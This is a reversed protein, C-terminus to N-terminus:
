GLDSPPPHALLAELGEILVEVGEDGYEELSFGPRKRFGAARVDDAVEGLPPLASLRELMAELAAQPRRRAWDFAVKVMIGAPTVVVRCPQIAGEPVEFVFTCAPKSGEGWFFYSVRPTAWDFLSRLLRQEGPSAKEEVVEFFSAETWRPTAGRASHKRRAAEEGFSNPLLIELGDVRSYRFELVVVELSTTTHANLYEVARKLDETIDDVAFVLRFAGEDLNAAVRARFDAPDFDDDGAVAAALEILSSGVRGRVVTDLEDYSMGWLGGAYGLLQGVVARRIEPNRNLKAEVLTIAGDLDVLLVDLYGAQPLAFERLAVVSAAAGVLHPSETVLAQLEAENEYSTVGPPQWSGGPKRILM